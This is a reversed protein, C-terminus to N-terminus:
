LMQGPLTKVFHLASTLIHCQTTSQKSLDNILIIVTFLRLDTRKFSFNAAPLIVAPMHTFKGEATDKSTTASPPKSQTTTSESCKAKLLSVKSCMSIAKLVLSVTAM